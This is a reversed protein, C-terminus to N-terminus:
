QRKTVVIQLPLFIAKLLTNAVEGGGHLNIFNLIIRKNKDSKISFYPVV